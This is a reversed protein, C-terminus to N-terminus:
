RVRATRSSSRVVTAYGPKSGVVKVQLRHGRDSRTIRYSRGTAGRISRGDRLWRYRFTVGSPSWSGRAAALRKGVRPTGTASPRASSLLGRAVTGRAAAVLTETTGARRGTVAAGLRKGLDAAVPTYSASTAGAIPAGNRYWQYGLDEDAWEGPQVALPRGVRPTGTVTPSAPAGEAPDCTYVEVQDVFWGLLAGDSDGAVTWVARVKNGALRSLDVRASRWGNSDGGYGTVTATRNGLLLKDSPGNQWAEPDHAAYAYGSGDAVQIRALGGDFYHAPSGPAWEFLHWHSFHLYTRQGTPVTVGNEMVLNSSPPDGWNFPDPNLAYLSGDADRANAPVGLQLNPAGSWLSGLKFEDAAPRALTRKLSGDPCAAPVEDPREAGAVAPPMSLETAETARQVETCDAATFGARDAAVLAQCGQVLVRGLDAYQSGSSLHQIAYLHLVATKTLSPDGADIGTVTRGNFSGGQSILHATKNGVGSNTHVGGNDSYLSAPSEDADWLPSTVRDPQRYPWAAPDSMSRLTGVPLDEGLRWDSPSDDASAHRHDLIEGMVDALSENIAGSEHFYFLNSTREIVGHTLEHATVDDAGAWGDGFYVGDGFWFANDMPCPFDSDPHDCVRVSARLVKAAGATDGQGLLETLDVGLAGYFESTAGVLDYAADVDARGSPAGGEVRAVRGSAATCATSHYRNGDDCVRRDIAAVQNFHLLVRGTAADVLVLERVSLGDGVEFRYVTRTGVAPGPLLSPDYLWTGEDTVALPGAAPHVKGVVAEANRRAKAVDYTAPDAASATSLDATASSLAGRADLGLVVEGGLVPVDDVYQDLRVVAGGDVSPRSPGPRVDTREAEFVPAVRDWQARAARGPRASRGVPFAGEARSGVFDVRGAGDRHVTLPVGADDRYEEVPDTQPEALAVEPTATTLGGVVLVGVVLAGLGRSLSM